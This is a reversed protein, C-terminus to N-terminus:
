AYVHPNSRHSQPQKDTEYGYLPAPEVLHTGPASIAIGGTQALHAFFRISPIQPAYESASAAVGWIGIEVPERAIAKALMWSLTSSFFWRGFRATMADRPYEVSGIIQSTHRQMYVVPRSRLWDGYAKGDADPNDLFRAHMEFWLDVRPLENENRPSLSWIEWAPDGFPANLKTASHAGVIAIKM